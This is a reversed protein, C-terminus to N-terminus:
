NHKPFKSQKRILLYFGTFILALILIGSTIGVGTSPNKITKEATFTTEASGGDKFTVKLTHVGNNLTDLYERIDRNTVDLTRINLKQLYEMLNKMDKQYEFVTEEKIGRYLLAKKFNILLLKNNENLNRFYWSWKRALEDGGKM